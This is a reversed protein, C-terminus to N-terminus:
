VSVCISDYVCLCCTAGVYVGGRAGIAQEPQSSIFDSLTALRGVGEVDDSLYYDAALTAVSIGFETGKGWNGLLM